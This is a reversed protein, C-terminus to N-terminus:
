GLRSFFDKLWSSPEQNGREQCYKDAQEYNTEFFFGKRLENELFFQADPNGNDASQEFYKFAQAADMPVGAGDLYAIGLRFQAIANGQGASQEFYKVAEEQIGSSSLLLGMCCMAEINGQDAMPKFYSTGGDNIHCCNTSHHFFDGAEVNDRTIAIYALRFLADPHGQQYSLKYCEIAKEINQDTGQGKEYNLGLDYQKECAARTNLFPVTGTSKTMPQM